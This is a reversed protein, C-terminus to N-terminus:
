SDDVSLDHINVDDTHKYKRYLQNKIRIQKKLSDSLWPKRNKYGNKFTKFPFCTDYLACYKNLFASYAAQTDQNRYIDEWNEVLLLNNFKAINDQSFTRKKTYTPTAEKKCSFDILFVPLHDSIDTYLIGSFIRNDELMSDENQAM